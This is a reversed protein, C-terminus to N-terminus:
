FGLLADMELQVRQLGEFVDRCTLGVYYRNLVDTKPAIHNLICRL